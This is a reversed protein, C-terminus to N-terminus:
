DNKCNSYNRSQIFQRNKEFYSPRQEEKSFLVTKKGYNFYSLKKYVQWESETISEIKWRVTKNMVMTANGKDATVIVEKQLFRLTVSDEHNNNPWPPIINELSWKVRYKIQDAQHKPLRSAVEELLSILDLYESETRQSGGSRIEVVWISM